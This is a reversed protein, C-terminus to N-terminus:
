RALRWVVGPLRFAQEVLARRCGDTALCRLQTYGQRVWYGIELGGPGIVM